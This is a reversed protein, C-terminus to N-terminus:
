LPNLDRPLQPRSLVAIQQLLNQGAQDNLQALTHLSRRFNELEQPNFILRKLIVAARHLDEEVYGLNYERILALNGDEQGAIHTVAFFPTETAVAEFITNPGAKGIILDAASMYCDINTIFPLVILKKNSGSPLQASLQDFNKKLKSNNGCALIIQVSEALTLLEPILKASKVEGESGAVFLLTLTNQDLNLQKRIESKSLPSRFRRRVFWGTVTTKAAPKLKACLDATTQDFVCNTDAGECVNTPFFTRPDVVVSLYPPSFLQLETQLKKWKIILADFGYSTGVIIDPVSSKLAASFMRQHSRRTYWSVFNSIGPLFLMRYYYRGTWPAHRYAWRYLVLVPDAFSVIHVEWAHARLSESMAEAISAHGQITTFILAKQQLDSM